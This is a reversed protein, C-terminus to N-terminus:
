GKVRRIKGKEIYFLTRRVGSIRDINSIDASTIITQIDKFSNILYWRRDEDLESFVDDLLLIPYLNRERKIIEVESLKISLVITRQQGQSAFVRANLGDLDFQIDDRHPGISTNGTKLDKELNKNLEELFSNEIADKNSFKVSPNYKLVLKERGTTLRAHNKEAIPSFKEIFEARTLIIEKGIKILQSDFIELLSKTQSNLKDTRLLNNRQFLVKNYKNINYRYVPKIQSIVNDLFNRREGPGEKVIKLDDPSFIVVILGSHLERLNKLEVRNIKIRKAGDRKLKIEILRDIGDLKVKAGIYAENKNLNILERDRSTRFSKGEACMYIAELLNTKGQANKGIFININENLELSIDYYNRFNILRISDIKLFLM